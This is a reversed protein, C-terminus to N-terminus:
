KVINLSVIESIAGKATCDIFSIAFPNVGSSIACIELSNGIYLSFSIFANASSAIVAAALSETPIAAISLITYPFSSTTSSAPSVSAASLGAVLPPSTKICFIAFSSRSKKNSEPATAGLMTLFM